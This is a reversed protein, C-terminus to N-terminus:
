QKLTKRKGHILAFAMKIYIGWGPLVLAWGRAPLPQARASPTGPGHRRQRAVFEVEAHTADLPLHRVRLGALAGPEFDLRAPWTAQWTALLYAADERM